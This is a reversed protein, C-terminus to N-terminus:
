SPSSMYAAPRSWKRNVAKWDPGYIKMPVHAQPPQYLQSFPMFGLKFAWEDDPTWKTRETFVRIVDM